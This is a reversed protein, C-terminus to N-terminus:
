WVCFDFRLVGSRKSAFFNQRQHPRWVACLSVRQHSPRRARAAALSAVELGGGGGLAGSLASALNARDLLRLALRARLALAAAAEAREGALGPRLELLDLPRPATLEEGGGHDDQDRDRDDAGVQRGGVEHQATEDAVDEEIKLGSFNFEWWGV